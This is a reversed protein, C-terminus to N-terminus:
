GRSSWSCTRAKRRTRGADTSYGAILGAENIAMAGALSGGLSGLDSMVGSQYLFPRTPSLHSEEITSEGVVQRRNNIGRAASFTGTGLTGLDMMAGNAYLFAHTQGASTESQGVVHGADNLSTGISYSGGLTGLSRLYGDYLFAVQMTETTTWGTALGPANIKDPNTFLGGLTGMYTVAGNRMIFALEGTPASHVGVITGANNIDRANMGGGFFSVSYRPLVTETSLIRGTNRTNM